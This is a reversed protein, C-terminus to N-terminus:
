KINFDLFKEDEIYAKLNDGKIISGVGKPTGTFIIDGETLHIFNSIYHILFDIKYIMLNSNGRQVTKENKELRFSINQINKYNDIPVFKSIPASHDFGKSILWPLGRKKAKEQLDRATFDIGVGIQDYYKKAFNESINKGKKSIKILLEVEFHIKESFNPYCFDKNNLLLSTDPKTFIVPDKPINNNLEKIHEMYNRGVCIIKM